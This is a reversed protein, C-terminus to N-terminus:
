SLEAGDVGNGQIQTLHGPNAAILTNSTELSVRLAM